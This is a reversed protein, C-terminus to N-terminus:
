IGVWEWVNVDKEKLERMASNYAPRSVDCFEVVDRITVPIQKMRCVVVIAVPILTRHSKRLCDRLERFFKLAYRMIDNPIPLFRIARCLVEEYNIPPLNKYMRKIVGFVRTTKYGFIQAVESISLIFGRIRADGYILAIAYLKADNTLAIKNCALYVDRLPVGLKTCVDQVHEKWRKPDIERRRKVNQPIMYKNPQVFGDRDLVHEEPGM